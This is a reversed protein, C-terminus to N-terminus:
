LRRRRRTGIRVRMVVVAGALFAVLILLTFIGGFFYRIAYDAVEQVPSSTAQVAEVFLLWAAVPCVAVLLVTSVASLIVTLWRPVVPDAVADTAQKTAFETFPNEPGFPRFPNTM